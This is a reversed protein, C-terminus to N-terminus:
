VDLELTASLSRSVCTNILTNTAHQADSQFDDRHDPIGARVGVVCSGCFGQGCSRYTEYGRSELADAISQEAGVPITEGTSSAVVDFSAGAKATRAAVFQEVHIQAPSWGGSLARSRALEIFEPPGCVYVAGGPTGVDLARPGATRFSDGTASFHQDVADAWPRADLHDALPLSSRDRAYVHFEFESRDRHLKEAMSVLPTLGIGGGVLITRATTAQLAFSSRPASVDLQSGVHITEHVARSGGRGDAEHQVCISYTDVDSPDGVLSYQRVMGGRIHLDVHSGAAFVPLRSGDIAGLHLLVARDSVGTRALVKVPLLGSRVDVAIGSVASGKERRWWAM